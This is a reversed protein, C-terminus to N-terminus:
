ECKLCVEEDSVRCLLEGGHPILGITANAGMLCKARQVAEELSNALEFGLLAAEEKGLGESVLLTKCFGETQMRIFAEGMGLVDETEGDAIARLVDTESKDYYRTLAQTHAPACGCLGYEASLLLIMVGGRKVAFHAFVYPKAGQWFDANAPNASVIVIDARQPISPCLIKRAFEVGARHAQIFDGCFVGQLHKEEDLVTNVIFALGVKRALTEMTRRFLNDVSGCTELVNQHTCSLMHIADTTEKGCVGPMIIKAGGGWGAAIHPVINGIGVVVDAALVEKYIQIPTGDPMEGAVAFRDKDLYSINVVPYQKSFPGLDEDIEEATMPRHTGLALVISLSLCPVKELRRVIRDLLLRRPTPRTIDDVIIAVQDGPKVIQELPPAGYPADLAEEVIQVPDPMMDPCKATACFLVNDDTFELSKEGYALRYTEAM